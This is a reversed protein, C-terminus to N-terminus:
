RSISLMALVSSCSHLGQAPCKPKRDRWLLTLSEWLESKKCWFLHPQRSLRWYKLQLSFSQCDAPLRMQLILVCKHMQLAWQEKREHHVDQAHTLAQAHTKHATHIHTVSSTRMCHMHKHLLILIPKSTHADM